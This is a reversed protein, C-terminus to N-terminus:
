PQTSQSVISARLDALDSQLAEIKAGDARWYGLLVDTAAASAIIVLPILVVAFVITRMFKARVQDMEEKAAATAIERARATFHGLEEALHM